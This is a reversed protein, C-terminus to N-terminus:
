KSLLFKGFLYKVLGHGVVNNTKRSNDLVSKNRYGVINRIPFGFRNYFHDIMKATNVASVYWKIKQFIDAIYTALCVDHHLNIPKFDVM